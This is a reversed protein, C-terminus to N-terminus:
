SYSEGPCIFKPKTLRHWTDLFGNSCAIALVKVSALRANGVKLARRTSTIPSIVLRGVCTGLIGIGDFIIVIGGVLYGKFINRCNGFRGGVMGLNGVVFELIEVVFELIKEYDLEKM